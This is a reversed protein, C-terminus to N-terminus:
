VNRMEAEKGHETGKLTNRLETAGIQEDRGGETFEADRGYTEKVFAPSCCVQCKLWQVISVEKLCRM